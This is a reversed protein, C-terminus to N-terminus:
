AVKRRFAGLGLLGLGLLAVSGPVPVQSPCPRSGQLDGENIGQTNTCSYTLRMNDWVGDASLSGAFSVTFPNALFSALTGSFVTVASSDNASSRALGGVTITNAGNGDISLQDLTVEVWTAAGLAAGIAAANLSYSVSNTGSINSGWAMQLTGTSYNANAPTVEIYTGNTPTGTAADVSLTRTAWLAGGAIPAGAGVPPGQQATQAIEFDDFVIVGANAAFSATLALSLAALKLKMSNELSNNPLKGTPYTEPKVSCVSHWVQLENINLYFNIKKWSNYKRQELPRVTPNTKIETLKKLVTFIHTLDCFSSKFTSNDHHL